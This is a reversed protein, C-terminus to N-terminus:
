RVLSMGRMGEWNATKAWPSSGSARHTISTPQPFPRSERYKALCRSWVIPTSELLLAIATHSRSRPLPPYSCRRNRLLETRDGLKGATVQEAQNVSGTRYLTELVRWREHKREARSVADKVLDQAQHLEFPKVKM